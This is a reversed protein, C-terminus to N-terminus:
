LGAVEIQSRGDILAALLSDALLGCSNRPDGPDLLYTPLSDSALDVMYFCGGGDMGIPVRSPQALPLGYEVMYERIQRPTFVPSWQREDNIFDRGKAWALFDRLMAPLTGSAPNKLAPEVPMGAYSAMRGLEEASFSARLAELEADFTPQWIPEQQENQPELKSEYDM